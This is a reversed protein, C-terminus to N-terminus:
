TARLERKLEKALNYALDSPNNTTTNVVISGITVNNGGISQGSRVSGAGGLPQQYLSALLDVVSADKVGILTDSSSFSIPPQGPRMVFDQWKGNVLTMPQGNNTPGNAYKDILSQMDPSYGAGSSTTNEGSNAMASAIAMYSAAVQYNSAILTENKRTLNEIKNAHTQYKDNLYNVEKQLRNYKSQQTDIQKNLTDRAVWENQLANIITSSNSAVGNTRDDEEQIANSVQTHMFGFYYEQALQLKELQIESETKGGATGSTQSASLYLTMNAKVASTTDTALNGGEEILAKIQEHITERWAKFVDTSIQSAETVKNISDVVGLYSDGTKNVANQIFSQVDTIGMAELQQKRIVQEQASIVESFPTEMTFREKSLINIENETEKLSSNYADLKNKAGEMEDKADRIEINLDKQANQLNYITQENSQLTADNTRITSEYNNTITTLDGYASSTNKIAEMYAIISGTEGEFVKKQENYLPTQKDLEITIIKQLEALQNLATQQPTTKPQVEAEGTTGTTMFNYLPLGVNMVNTGQPQVSVTGPAGTYYNPTGMISTANYKSAMFIGYTIGRQVAENFDKQAQEVSIGYQKAQERTYEEPTKQEQNVIVSGTTITMTKSNGFYDKAGTPDVTVTGLGEINISKGGTLNAVDIRIGNKFANQILNEPKNAEQLTPSMSVVLNGMQNSLTTLAKGENLTLDLLALVGGVISAINIISLLMTGFSALKAGMNAMTVSFASMPATSALVSATSIKYANSLALLQAETAYSIKTAPSSVMKMLNASGAGYVSGGGLLNTIGSLDASRTWMPSAPSSGRGLTTPLTALIKGMQYLVGGTVGVVGVTMATTVPKTLSEKAGGISKVLNGVNGIVGALQTAAEVAFPRWADKTANITDKLKNVTAEMQTVAADHVDSIETLSKEVDTFDVGQSFFNQLAAVGAGARINFMQGLAKAKEEPNLTDLGRKIDLLSNNLTKAEGSTTYFTIGLLDFWKQAEASPDAIASLIQRLTTGARTGAFGANSLVILADATEKASFGLAASYPAVYSMSDGFSEVSMASKIASKYILDAARAATMGEISFQHITAAVITGATDLDTFGATALDLVSRLGEMAEKASFGAKIFELMTTATEESSFPTGQRSVRIFETLGSTDFATGSVAQIKKLQLEWDMGFQLMNKFPQLIAKNLALWYFSINVLTWRLQTFESLADRTENTVVRMKVGATDVERYYQRVAGTVNNVDAYYTRLGGSAAQQTKTNSSQSANLKNIEANAVSVDNALQKFVNMDGAKTVVVAIPIIRTATDPM